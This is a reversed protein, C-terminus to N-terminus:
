NAYWQYQCNIAAFRSICIYLSYNYHLLLFLLPRNFTLTNLLQKILLKKCCLLRESSLHTTPARMNRHLLLGGETLFVMAFRPRAEDANLDWRSVIPRTHYAQVCVYPSVWPCPPPSLGGKLWQSFCLATCNATRKIHVCMAM